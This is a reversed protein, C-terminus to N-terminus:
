RENDNSENKLMAEEMKDGGVVDQVTLELVNDNTVAKVNEGMKAMAKEIDWGQGDEGQDEFVGLRDAILHLNQCGPCRM